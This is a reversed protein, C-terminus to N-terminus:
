LYPIINEITWMSNYHYGIAKHIAIHQAQTVKIVNYMDKSKGVVHHLHMSKGDVQPALGNMMRKIQDDYIEPRYKAENRWVRKRFTGWSPDGQKADTISRPDLEYSQLESTTVPKSRCLYKIANISSSIFLFASTFLFSDLVANGLGSWTVAQQTLLSSLLYGAVGFGIGIALEVFIAGASGGSAVTLAVAARLLVLGLAFKLVWHQRNYWKSIKYWIPVNKNPDYQIDPSLESSTQIRYPNGALDLINNCLIGNRDISRTPYM